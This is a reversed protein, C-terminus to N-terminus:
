KSGTTVDSASYYTAPQSAGSSTISLNGQFNTTQPVTAGIVRRAGLAKEIPTLDSDLFGGWKIEQEKPAWKRAAEAVIRGLDPTNAGKM